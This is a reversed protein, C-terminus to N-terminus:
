WAGKGWLIQANSRTFVNRSTQQARLRDIHEQDFHYINISYGARAVPIEHRLFAYEGKQSFINNVSVAYWGPQTRYKV